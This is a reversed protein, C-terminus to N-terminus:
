NGEELHQGYLLQLCDPIPCEQRAGTKVEFQDSAEGEVQVQCWTGTYMQQILRVMCGPVGYKWLVVM